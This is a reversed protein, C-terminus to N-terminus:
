LLEMTLLKKRSKRNIVLTVHTANLPVPATQAVKEAHQVYMSMKTPELVVPKVVFDWKKMM